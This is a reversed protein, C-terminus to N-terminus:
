TLSLSTTAVLGAKSTGLSHMPLVQV